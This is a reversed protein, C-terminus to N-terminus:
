RDTRGLARMLRALSRAYHTGPWYIRGCKPCRSFINQTKRVHPPIEDLVDEKAVPELLVNCEICRTMARGSMELNFEAAVEAVQELVRDSKVLYSEIDPREAMDRRRTLLTRGTRLTERLVDPGSVDKLYVADCGLMRLYRALRGLAADLIFERQGTM